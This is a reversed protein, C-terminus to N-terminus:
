EKLLEERSINYPNTRKFHSDEHRKRIAELVEPRFECATRNVISKLIRDVESYTKAGIQELDSSTIGLGDTPVALNCASLANAQETFGYLFLDFELDKSIDYVETKWLNQIPGYDGVDGHLTWFGLLYETYNDTSIVMGEYNFALQYLHMMRVRAKINGLGIKFRREPMADWNYKWEATIDNISDYLMDAISDIPQIAYQTCFAEGIADARDCEDKKNSDSPLFVGILPLSLKDMVPKLLAACIASDVGGSIGIIASRLKSRIMYAKFNERINNVVKACETSDM